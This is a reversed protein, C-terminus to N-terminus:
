SDIVLHWIEGKQSMGSLVGYCSKEHKRDGMLGQLEGHEWKFGEPASWNMQQFFVPKGSRPLYMGRQGSAWCEPKRRGLRLGFATAPREAYGALWEGPKRESRPRVKGECPIIFTIFLYMSTAFRNEREQFPKCYIRNPELVQRSSDVECVISMLFPTLFLQLMENIVFSLQPFFLM